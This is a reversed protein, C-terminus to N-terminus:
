RIVGYHQRLEAEHRPSLEEGADVAPADRVRGCAFPVRVEGPGAPEAGDVPVLRSRAGFRGTRVLMWEPAGSGDDLYIDRIAGIREGDPDVATLGAWELAAHEPM